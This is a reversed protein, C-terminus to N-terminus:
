NSLETQPAVMLGSWIHGLSKVGLNGFTKEFQNLQLLDKISVWTDEAIEFSIHPNLVYEGRSKRVFLGRNYPDSGQVENKSLIASLYNRKKRHPPIVDEPFDQILEALTDATLLYYSPGIAQNTIAGSFYRQWLLQLLVFEVPRSSVKILRSKAMYSVPFQKLLGFVSSLKNTRYEPNKLASHLCLTLATRGWNDRSDVKAGLNLLNQLFNTVGLQAALHLPTHNFPNQFDVGYAKFKTELSSFNKGLYELHYKNKISKFEENLDTKGRYRQLVEQLPVVDDVLAYQFLTQRTTKDVKSMTQSQIALHTKNMEELDLIQWPVPKKDGLILKHIEAAQDLKGQQELRRAEARWEDQTSEELEIDVNNTSTPYDLLDFIKHSLCNEIIILNQVSRTIAVYLSNIFFKYVELSKDSKNKARSYDLNEITNIDEIGECIERFEKQYESVFDFVIIDRYELGKAEHVNFVLPTQFYARARAKAEDNPTIIACKTSKATKDNVTKLVNAETTLRLIHGPYQSQSKVLFNSEKDISGFRKNKLVLIKNSLETVNQSNRFNNNLVRLIETPNQGSSNYFMTKVSAWSFFNPHVIQNSDGCLFWQGSTNGTSKLSKLILHIQINTLDQIEDVVVFDYKPSILKENQHSVINLDFYSESKLFQLYKQFVDYVLPRENELFISQKIGLQLYEERSLYATHISSGTLVGRFEEFLKHPDKLSSSGKIRNWWSLFQKFHLEKGQPIQISQIFEKFSLFDLEQAESDFGNSYYIRRSNEVLFKSLTVYLGQGTLAKMKELMLATKGSGASGVVILPLPLSLIQSQAQDFSILKDLIHFRKESQNVYVLKEIQASPQPSSDIFDNDSVRHNRLFRSKEYNHNKIVELLLLYKKTKNEGIQFILRNKDDLWARYLNKNQLKKVNLQDWEGTALVTTAKQVKHEVGTTDLENFQLIDYAM